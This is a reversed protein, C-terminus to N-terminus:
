LPGYEHCPAVCIDKMKIKFDM